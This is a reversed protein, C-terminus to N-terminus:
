RKSGRSQWVFAKRVAASAAVPAQGAWVWDPHAARFAPLTMDGDPIAPLGDRARAENITVLGSELQYAVFARGEQDEPETGEEQPTAEPMGGARRLYAELEKDPFLPVGAGALATLYSGLAGLDPTEIDDRAFKPLAAGAFEPNLRFLATVASRNLTEIISDLWAGIAIAFLDTKSDALAFSGVKEHGLLIFDAMVSMAIDRNWRGIIAGTDFIRRSAVSLLELTFRKNGKDDYELPLVVGAQENNRIQTVMRKITELIAKEEATASPRLLRAPVGAVPVGVLDRELGIGEINETHKKFFWARYSSRLASRGEPNEKHSSVRFHLLRDIPLYRRDFLPPPSQWAGRLTGTAPDIDWDTITSQARIPIKRWGIRGDDFQSRNEPSAAEPGLRRRYVPEHLAYGYPLMSLAEDVFEDWTHQMDGQCSRLFEAAQEDLAEKGGAEVRWAVSRILMRIAFLIAGVMADNSSMERYVRVAKTGSLEPLFEERIQGSYVELGTAGIESVPDGAPSTVPPTPPAVPDAM